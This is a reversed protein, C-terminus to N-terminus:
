DNREEPKRWRVNLIEFIREESRGEVRRIKSVGKGEKGDREVEWLGKNDLRYGRSEALREIGRNFAKSGTFYWLAAGYEEPPALFVDIRRWIPPNIQPLCAAGIWRKLTEAKGAAFKAKLYGRSYLDPILQHIIQKRLGAFCIHSATVLFDIDHMTQMGRRYSGVMTVTTRPDIKNLAARFLNCHKDAEDRPIESEFDNM